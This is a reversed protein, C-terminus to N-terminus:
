AREFGAKDNGYVEAGSRLLNGEDAPQMQGWPAKLIDGGAAAAQARPEKAACPHAMTSLGDAMLGSPAKITELALDTPSYGTAPDFIHTDRSDPSFSTAYDGSTSVFADGPEIAGLTQGFKRPYAIAM